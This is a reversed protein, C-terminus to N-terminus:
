AGSRTGLRGGPPFFGVVVTGDRDMAAYNWGWDRLVAGALAIGTHRERAGSLREQLLMAVECADEGSRPASEVSLAAGELYAFVDGQGHEVANALMEEVVVLRVAEPLDPQFAQPPGREVLLRPAPDPRSRAVPSLTVIEWASQVVRTWEDEDSGQEDRHVNSSIALLRRCTSRIAVPDLRGRNRVNHVFHKYLGPLRPWVPGQPPFPRALTELGGLELDAWALTEDTPSRILRQVCGIAGIGLPLSDLILRSSAELLRRDVDFPEGQLGLALLARVCGWVVDNLPRESQVDVLARRLWDRTWSLEHEAHGLLVLEAVLAIRPLLEHCRARGGETVVERTLQCVREFPEPEWLCVTAVALRRLRATLQELEFSRDLETAAGDTRLVEWWERLLALTGAHDHVESLQKTRERLRSRSPLSVRRRASAARDASPPRLSAPDVPEEGFLLAVSEPALRPPNGIPGIAEVLRQYARSISPCGAPTVVPGLRTLIADAQRMTGTQLQAAYVELIPALEVHEGAGRRTLQESLESSFHYLASSDPLSRVLEAAADVQGARLLLSAAIGEFGGLPDILESRRSAVLDCGLDRLFATLQGCVRGGEADLAAYMGRLVELLAPRPAGSIWESVLDGCRVFGVALESDTLRASALVAGLARSWRVGLPATARTFLETMGPAPSRGACVLDALALGALLEDADEGPPDGRTTARVREWLEGVVPPPDHAALWAPDFDTRTALEWLEVLARRSVYPPGHRVWGVLLRLPDQVGAPPSAGRLRRVLGMWDADFGAWRLLQARRGRPREGPANSVKRLVNWQSLGRWHFLDRGRDAELDDALSEFSEPGLLACAVLLKSCADGHALGGAIMQELLQGLTRDSTLRRRLRWAAEVRAQPSSSGLVLRVENVAALVEPSM